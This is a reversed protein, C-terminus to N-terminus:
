IAGSSGCNVGIGVHSGALATARVSSNATRANVDLPLMRRAPNTSALMAPMLLTARAATIRGQSHLDAIRREELGSQLNLLSANDEPAWDSRDLLGPLIATLRTDARARDLAQAYALNLAPTAPLHTRQREWLAVAQEPQGIDFWANAVQRIAGPDQDILNEAQALLAQRQGADAHALAQAILVQRRAEQLLLTQSPSRQAPAIAQMDKLAAGPQDQALWILARAQRMDPDTPALAVGDAM